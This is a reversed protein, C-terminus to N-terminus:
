YVIDFEEGDEGKFGGDKHTVSGGGVRPRSEVFSGSLPIPAPGHSYPDIASLSPPLAVKGMGTSAVMTKWMNALYIGIGKAKRWSALRIRTSFPDEPYDSIQLDKVGFWGQSTIWASAPLPTGPVYANKDFAPSLSGPVRFQKPTSGFVFYYELSHHSFSFLEVYNYKKIFELYTEPIGLLPISVESGTGYLLKIFGCDYNAELITRMKADPAAEQCTDDFLVKGKKTGPLIKTIDSVEVFGGLPLEGPSKVDLWTVPGFEPESAKVVRHWHNEKTVGYADIGGKGHKCGRKVLTDRLYQVKYPVSSRSGLIGSMNVSDAKPIDGVCPQRLKEHQTRFDAISGATVVGGKPSFGPLNVERDLIKIAGLAAQVAALKNKRFTVVLTSLHTVLSAGEQNDMAENLILEWFAKGNDSKFGGIPASIIRQKLSTTLYQAVRTTLKVAMDFKWDLPGFGSPVPASHTPFTLDGEKSRSPKRYTAMLRAARIVEVPVDKYVHHTGYRENYAQLFQSGGDIVHAWRDEDQGLTVAPLGVNSVTLKDGIYDLESDNLSSVFIALSYSSFTRSVGEPNTYLHSILQIASFTTSLAEARAQDFAGSLSQRFKGTGLSGVKNACAVFDAVNWTPKGDLPYGISSTTGMYWAGLITSPTEANLAQRQAPTLNKYASGFDQDEYDEDMEDKTRKPEPLIPPPATPAPPPARAEEDVYQNMMANVQDITLAAASNSM